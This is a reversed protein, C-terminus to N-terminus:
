RRMIKKESLYKGKRGEYFALYCLASGKYYELMYDHVSLQKIKNDATKITLDIFHFFDEDWIDTEFDMMKSQITAAMFFYGEPHDPYQDIIKKLIKEAFQYNHQISLEIVQQILSDNQLTISQQAQLGSTLSLCFIISMWKKYLNM